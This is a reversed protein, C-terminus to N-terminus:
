KPKHEVSQQKQFLNPGSQSSKKSVKKTKKVKTAKKAKTSKKANKAKLPINKPKNLVHLSTAGIDNQQDSFSNM